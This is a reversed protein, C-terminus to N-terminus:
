AAARRCLRLLIRHLEGLTRVQVDNRYQGEYISGNPFECHGFGHRKDAVWEGEYRSVQKLQISRM